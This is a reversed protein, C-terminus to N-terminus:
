FSPWIAMCLFRRLGTNELAAGFKSGFKLLWYERRAVAILEEYYKYYLNEFFDDKTYKM